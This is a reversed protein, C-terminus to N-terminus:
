NRGQEMEGLRELSRNLARLKEQYEASKAREKEIVAEKAKALFEANALKKQIRSLEEEVKRAEKTLRAREEAPKILDGLPLYVETGGIVATAAGKPREGSTLYEIAGIRALSRLYAEQARLLGLEAGHFIVKVEKGPPCNMEARLNRVARVVEMLFEMEKEIGKDIWAPESRPYTQLMLSRENKGPVQQWIEETVFPMIPHLLSLIQELLELLLRRSERPDGPMTGNLSLKSMEIYWDCFEHWTFQYLVNAYDNFRYADIAERAQAITSALRSRIWRDAFNGAGAASGEATGDGKQGDRAVADDGLNMLVFRAANWLKNVFNQYGAIREEALKIDRGMAAMAALTFRFADTGYRAMVDLPDIVNGKSKSMKQGEEDRVLAHIYVERFPVDAMFKLGMMIMRAVWFFLIDFGTVLTSTPYFS